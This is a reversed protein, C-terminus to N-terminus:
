IVNKIKYTLLLIKSFFIGWRLHKGTCKAFYKLAGIKLFIVFAAKTM